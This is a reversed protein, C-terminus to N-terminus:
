DRLVIRTVEPRAQRFVPDRLFRDVIRRFDRRVLLPATREFRRMGAAFFPRAAVASVNEEFNIFGPDTKNRELARRWEERTLRRVDRRRIPYRGPFRPDDEPDRFWVFYRARQRKLDGRTLARRGEHVFVAWYPELVLARRWRTARGRVGGPPFAASYLEDRLGQSPIQRRAFREARITLRNAIWAAAGLLTPPTASQFGTLRRATALRRSAM